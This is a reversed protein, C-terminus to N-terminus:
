EAVVFIGTLAPLELPFQTVNGLPAGEAAGRRAPARREAVTAQVTSRGGTQPDWLEVSRKAGRLAVNLQVPADTSNSIFYLDKGGRVKHTYTLAGAYDHDMKVYYDGPVGLDIDRVPMVEALVEELVSTYPNALFYGRGGAANTNTFINLFRYTAHRVSCTMPKIDSMGFVEYVMDRVEQDRGAEAAYVPLKSTGIVTGGARYFELV